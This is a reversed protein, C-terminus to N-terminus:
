RDLEYKYSSYILRKTTDVNCKFQVLVYILFQVNHVVIFLITYVHLM